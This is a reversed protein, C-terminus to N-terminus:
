NRLRLVLNNRTFNTLTDSAVRMSDSATLSSMAAPPQAWLIFCHRNSYYLGSVSFQGSTSAVVSTPQVPVPADGACANLSPNTPPIVEALHITAGGVPQGAPNQVIGSFTVAPPVPSCGCVTPPNIIDCAVLLLCALIGLRM